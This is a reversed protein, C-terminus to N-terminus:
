CLRVEAEPRKPCFPSMLHITEVTGRKPALARARSRILEGLVLDSMAMILSSAPTAVSSGNRGIVVSRPSPRLIM